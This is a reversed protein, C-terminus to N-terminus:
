VTLAEHRPSLDDVHHLLAKVVNAFFLNARQDGARLFFAELNAALFHAGGVTM